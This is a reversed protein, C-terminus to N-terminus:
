YDTYKDGICYGISHNGKRNLHNDIACLCEGYGKVAKEGLARSEVWSIEPIYAFISDAVTEPSATSVLINCAYSVESDGSAQQKLSKRLYNATEVFDLEKYEAGDENANFYRVASICQQYGRCTSNWTSYGFGSLDGPSCVPFFDSENLRLSRTEEPIYTIMPKIGNESTEDELWSTEHWVNYYTRSCDSIQDPSFSVPTPGCAAILPLLAFIIKKM